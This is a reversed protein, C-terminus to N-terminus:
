SMFGVIWDRADTMTNFMRLEGKTNVGRWRPDQPNEKQYSAYSIVGILEDHRYVSCTGDDHQETKIYSPFPYHEKM